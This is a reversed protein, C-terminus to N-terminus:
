KGHTNNRRGEVAAWAKEVWGTRPVLYPDGADVHTVGELVLCAAFSRPQVTIAVLMSGGCDCPKIALRTM